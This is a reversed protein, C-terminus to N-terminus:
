LSKSKKKKEIKNKLDPTINLDIKCYGGGRVNEVGYKAMMDIVVQSELERNGIRIGCIRLPKYKKTWLSGENNYHQFLRNNLHDTSGVYYKNHELKLVYVLCYSKTVYKKLDTM